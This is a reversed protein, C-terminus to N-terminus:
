FARDSVKIGGQDLRAISRGRSVTLGRKLSAAQGMSSDDCEVRIRPDNYSRIWDVSADTSADDIILFEFDTFTQVLISELAERLYPLGNYVTMLVTVLPWGAKRPRTEDTLM